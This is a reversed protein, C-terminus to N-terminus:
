DVTITYAPSEGNRELYENILKKADNIADNNTTFIWIQDGVEKEIYNEKMSFIVQKAFDVNDYRLAIRVMETCLTNFGTVYDIYADWAGYNQNHARLDYEAGAKPKEGLPTFNDLTFLLRKDAESDDMPLLYQMEAKYIYNAANWFKQADEKKYHWSGANVRKIYDSQLNNLIEHAKSYDNAEVAAIYADSSKAEEENVRQCDSIASFIGGTVFIVGIISWTLINRKRKREAEMEKLSKKDTQQFADNLKKLSDFGKKLM